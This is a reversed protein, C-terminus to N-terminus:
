LVSFVPYEPAQDHFHSGLCIGAVTNVMDRFNIREHAGIGSLERISKGKAWEPISKVRGRYSVEFATAMNKQLWQVLDRLFNSAKSEYTSKAHGSSTSALDLAAAYSSLAMRFAPD